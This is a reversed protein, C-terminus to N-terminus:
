IPIFSLRFLTTIVIDVLLGLDKNTTALTPQNVKYLLILAQLHPHSISKTCGCCLDSQSHIYPQTALMGAKSLSCVSSHPNSDRWPNPHSSTDPAYKAKHIRQIARVEPNMFLCWRGGALCAAYLYPPPSM